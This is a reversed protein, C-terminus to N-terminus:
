AKFYKESDKIVLVYLIINVTIKSRYHFYYKSVNSPTM